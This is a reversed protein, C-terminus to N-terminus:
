SDNLRCAAASVKMMQQQNSNLAHGMAAAPGGQPQTLQPPVMPGALGGGLGRMDAHGHGGMHPGNLMGGGGGGGVHNNVAKAVVSGGGGALAMGGGSGGSGPGNGSYAQALLVENTGPGGGM